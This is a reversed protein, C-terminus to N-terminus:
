TRARDRGTRAAAAGGCVETSCWRRSRGRSTDYFAWQCEESRCLKLRSWTGRIRATAVLAVLSALAGRVGPSTPALGVPDSVATLPFGRCVDDLAAAALPDVAAGHHTALDARLAARLRLALALDRGSAPVGVPILDNSRLWRQLSNPGSLEDAGEGVDLTNVFSRVTEVEAPIQHTATPV